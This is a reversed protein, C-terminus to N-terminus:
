FSSGILNNKIHVPQKHYKIFLPLSGFANLVDEKCVETKANNLIDRYSSWHWDAMNKCLGHHVPNKHIYFITACLQDDDKVNIRRMYDIFLGGKRNYKKNYSKAYSNFFNSFREMIYDGEDSPDYRKGPKMLKFHQRILAVPKVKILFHFHNPLLCWSYIDIIPSLYKAAKELFFSYDNEESFLKEMGIARNYVHYYQEAALPIHYKSM